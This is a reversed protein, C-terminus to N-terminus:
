NVGDAITGELELNVRAIEGAAERYEAALRRARSERLAHAIAGAIFRSRKRSDVERSLDRLLNEPLSINIRKSSM